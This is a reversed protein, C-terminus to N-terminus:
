AKRSTATSASFGRQRWDAGATAETSCVQYHRVRYGWESELIYVIHQFSWEDLVDAGWGLQELQQNVLGATFLGGDKIIRLVSRVVGPIHDPSIGRSTLGHILLQLPYTM